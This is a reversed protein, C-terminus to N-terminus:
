HPPEPLRPRSRSGVTPIPHVATEEAPAGEEQRERHWSALTARVLPRAGIPSIVTTILSVGAVITFVTTDFVGASLLIVAMALAVAGRSSVLFGCLFSENPSRDLALSFGAGVIFKSAVAYIVLGSFALLTAASFGLARFNTGYGVLVFFLPIFFGWGVTDLVTILSRHAAKGTVEPTVLFGAYFAGVVFTLGLYQSYLASGLAAVILLAFGAERSNWTRRFGEKLRNWTSPRSVLYRLLFYVALVTGLFLLVAGVATGAAVWSPVASTSMQLLAAFVTVACLENVVSANMLFVGFPTELLGFERLMVGLVPLATMSITLSVFLVEYGGFSPYFLHVVGAGGVFPIFFIAVGLLTSPVGTARLQQPSISMGAVLLIFFTALTELGSFEPTVSALGLAPGLLTPGLLVGVLLQGVLAAQGIHTFLEGVLVASAILVFLGIIFLTTPNIVHM